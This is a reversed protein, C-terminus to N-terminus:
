EDDPLKWTWKDKGTQKSIKLAEEARNEFFKGTEDDDLFTIGASITYDGNNRINNFLKNIFEEAISKDQNNCYVFISFEDGGRQFGFCKINKNNNYENIINNIQNNLSLIIYKAGILSNNKINGFNDGDISILVWNVDFSDAISNLKNLYENKKHLLKNKDNILKLLYNCENKLSLRFIKRDYKDWYYNSLGKHSNNNNNLLEEKVKNKAILLNNLARNYIDKFTGDESIKIISTLGISISYDQYDIQSILHKIEKEAFSVKKKCEIIIAFQDGIYNHAHAIRANNSIKPIKQISTIKAM